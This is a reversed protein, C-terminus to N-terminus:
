TYHGPGPLSPGPAPGKPLTPAPFGPSPSTPRGPKPRNPTTYPDNDVPTYPKGNWPGYGGWYVPRYMAAATNQFFTDTSWGTPAAARLAARHAFVNCRIGQTRQFDAYRSSVRTSIDVRGGGNQGRSETVTWADNMLGVFFTVPSSVVAYTSPTIAALYVKALRGRYTEGLILALITQDVGNISLGVGGARADSTEPMIDVAMAGYVSTWTHSNWSVPAGATTLYLTGSGFQLEILYVLIGTQATFETVMGGSLSRSM